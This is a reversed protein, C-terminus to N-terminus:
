YDMGLRIIFRDSEKKPIPRTLNAKQIINYNEDHINVNSIYVFPEEANLPNNDHRLNKDHTKNNSQNFDIRDVPINIENIYNTVCADFNIKYDNYGLLHLVPNQLVVIGEKYFVNGVYNWEAQKSLCDSRYLSGYGNDRLSIGSLNNSDIDTLVLSRKEISNELFVNDFVFINIFPCDIDRTFDYYPSYYNNLMNITAYVGNFKVFSESTNNSYVNTNKGFMERIFINSTNEYNFKFNEIKSILKKHLRLQRNDKLIKHSTYNLENNVFTKFQDFSSYDLSDKLMNSFTVFPENTIIHEKIGSNTIVQIINGAIDSMNYLENPYVSQMAISSTETSNDINYFDDLKFEQTLKEDHLISYEQIINFNIKPIGNDNPLILSNKKNIYSFNEKHKLCIESFPTGSKSLQEVVETNNSFENIENVIYFTPDENYVKQENCNILINPTNNKVFEIMYNEVNIDYGLSSGSLIKNYCMDNEFFATNGHCDTLNKSLRKKSLFIVPVYFCLNNESIEQALNQVYNEHFTSCIDSTLYTSYIRIDSIEGVFSYLINNTVNLPLDNSYNLHDEGSLGRLKCSNINYLRSYVNHIDSFDEVGSIKSGLQIINNSSSIQRTTSIINTEIDNSDINLTFETNNDTLNRCSLTLTHWYKDKIIETSSLYVDEDIFNSSSYLANWNDFDISDNFTKEGFLLLVRSKEIGLLKSSIVCISVEGPIHLICGPKIFHKNDRVNFKLSVTYNKGLIDYKHKNDGIFRNNYVISEYHRNNEYSGLSLTNYNCFGFTLNKYFDMSLDDAYKRYVINKIFNKKSVYDSNVIFKHRINEIGFSNKVNFSKILENLNFGLQSIRKKYYNLRDISILLKEQRNVENVLNRVLNIVENANEKGELSFNEKVIYSLPIDGLYSVNKSDINEDYVHTELLSKRYIKKQITNIKNRVIHNKDLSIFTM